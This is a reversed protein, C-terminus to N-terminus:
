VISFNLCASYEWINFVKLGTTFQMAGLGRQQAPRAGRRESGTDDGRSFGNRDQPRSEGSRYQDSTPSQMRRLLDGSRSVRGAVGLPARVEAERKREPAAKEGDDKSGINLLYDDLGNDDGHCVSSTHLFAFSRLALAETLSKRVALM